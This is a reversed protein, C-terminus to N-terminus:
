ESSSPPDRKALTGLILSSAAAYALANTSEAVTALYVDLGIGVIPAVVTLV